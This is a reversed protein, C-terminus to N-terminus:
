LVKLACGPEVKGDRVLRYIYKESLGLINEAERMTYGTAPLELAQM